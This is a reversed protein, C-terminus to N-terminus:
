RKRARRITWRFVVTAATGREDTARVRVTRSGPRLPTGSILGTRHNITLGAPLDAATFKLRLSAADHGNVRVSVKTGVRGSHDTLRGLRVSNTVARPGNETAPAAGAGDCLAQGLSATPTGLGSAMDYGPRAPFGAVSDFANSGSTVDHFDAGYADAAARYLGPNLFGISHGGCAPSADALAALAAVTPASVSTGGVARWSGEYYAAYGTLPDGDVSIDPVERCAVGSSGCTVVPQPRAVADQYEPRGWVSSVGGGGAGLPDNWVVDGSAQLSTAGVATVWPQSAPDDVSRVGDGCDDSGDDGSSALFSQGQVAAEEFLTNEASVPVSGKLADCLGWSTSIVEAADDGVIRSYTDYAGSGTPPGEYVKISAQPALGILDEVDMAAEGSGAGSGAGGDVDVTAVSTATGYCAQYAAIDAASFPELEYVAITVGRGEDGAAYYGSLGYASAIEDATHAGTSAADAQAAACPQPGATRAARPRLVVRTRGTRTPDFVLGPDVTVSANPAPADSGIVAQVLRDVGADMLPMALSDSDRYLALPRASAKRSGAAVTVELALRNTTVGGVRVGRAALAARVKTIASTSAGFRRAFQAVTLYHRYLPSGPTTVAVAYAALASANRPVMAVTAHFTTVRSTAEAPSAGGGLIATSTLAAILLRNCRPGLM